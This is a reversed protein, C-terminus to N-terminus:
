ASMAKAAPKALTRCNLSVTRSTYAAVGVSSRPVAPPGRAGRGARTVIRSATRVGNAPRRAAPSGRRGGRAPRRPRRVPSTRGCARGAARGRCPGARRQGVQGRARAVANTVAVNRSCSRRSTVAATSRARRSTSASQSGRRRRRAVEGVVRHDTREGRPVGPQAHGPLDVAVLGRHPGHDALLDAHGARAGDGAPEHGLVAARDLGATGPSVWRKGLAAVRAPARGRARQRHRPRPAPGQHRQAAASAAPSMASSRPGSRSSTRRASSASGPM